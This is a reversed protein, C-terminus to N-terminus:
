SLAQGTYNEICRLFLEVGIGLAAEDFDFRPHHHPYDLGKAPNASGLFFYCGPVENLFFSVDEGGMTMEPIIRAESGFVQRAAQEVLAVMAPDNQVAPYGREFRFEYTAGYAQCIGAVIEEMRKSILDRVEPQFSRVTGWIEARPAIVNFTDGARFRGVTVVAPLMPDVNRSVITQLANVIHSGVVIADVTQQPLAAHGGRGIVQIQFRDAFAMSPGSKVGITGLPRNNWLHLGLIAEVDPNKLVGAELMPKAGGPGEEAPQFIVKVTGKLHQRHQQLLKATGMAIATHGDHGCAHMVNPIASRYEVENAEHIPLADMDARLALVPGPQEGEITAVIGTHAIGTQHPIGWSKLRQSIYAATQKEQFGLEPYKHIHRRWTVLEPQLARVAPRLAPVSMVQFVFIDQFVKVLPQHQRM